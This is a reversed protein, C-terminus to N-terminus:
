GAGSRGVEEPYGAVPDGPQFVERRSADPLLGAQSNRVLHLSYLLSESSSGTCCGQTKHDPTGSVAPHGCGQYTRAAPRQLHPYWVAVRRRLCGPWGTQHSVSCGSGVSIAGMSLKRGAGRFPTRTTRSMKSFVTIKRGNRSSNAMMLSTIGTMPTRLAQVTMTLPMAQYQIPKLLVSTFSNWLTSHSTRPVWSSLRFCQYKTVQLWWLQVSMGAIWYTNFLLIGRSFNKRFFSSIQTGSSPTAQHASSKGNMCRWVLSCIALRGSSFPFSM